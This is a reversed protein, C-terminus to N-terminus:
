ETVNIWLRLTQHIDDQGVKSLLFEVTQNGGARNPTFGVEQEWGEDQELTVPGVRNNELSAIAIEVEYTVTDHERNVVGVTVNGQEGVALEKPYGSATGDAGLIYFETYREGVKPNSVAYAFTGLTGLITVALVVSIAKEWVSASGDWGPIRLPFEIIFREEKALRRRRLWAVVSAIIIFSTTSYLVPELGIKWTYNLAFGTLPVVAISMGFSLAVRELGSLSDKRTFLAAVLTYGPAFLLFPLGLVIRLTDSGFGITAVILLIALLSLLLLDNGTRVLM